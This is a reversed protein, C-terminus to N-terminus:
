DQLATSRGGTSGLLCIGVVSTHGYVFAFELFRVLKLESIITYTSLLSVGTNKYGTGKGATCHPSLPLYAHAQLYVRLKCLYIKKLEELNM